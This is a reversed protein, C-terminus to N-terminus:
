MNKLRSHQNRGMKKNGNLTIVGTRCWADAGAGGTQVFDEITKGIDPCERLVKSVKKSRCRKLLREEPIPRKANRIAKRCLSERKKKILVQAHAEFPSQIASIDGDSISDDSEFVVNRAETDHQRDQESKRLTYVKRSQPVVNMESDCM